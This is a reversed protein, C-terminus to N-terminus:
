RVPTCLRVAGSFLWNVMLALAIAASCRHAFGSGGPRALSTAFGGGIPDSVNVFVIPITSNESASHLSEPLPKLL